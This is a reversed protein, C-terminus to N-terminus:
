VPAGDNPTAAVDAAFPDLAEAFLRTFEAIEADGIILPPAIRIRRDNAANVILGLRLARAAVAGAVPEALGIGLLLGRGQIDTVLPSGIGLIADRLQEGRM